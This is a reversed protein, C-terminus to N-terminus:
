LTLFLIFYFAILLIITVEQEVHLISIHTPVAIDRRSITRLLTSKGIGNRGVLGYRRGYVLTLNTNTLIRKGGFSIDFNEVKVDKVKGKTSTYDLIPNVRMFFENDTNKNILKSAEYNSRRERKEMKAKIKAEAKELKKTDVRTSVKRGSVAELDISSTALRATASISNSTLMNVPQELKALGNTNPKDSVKAFLKSLKECLQHIGEEDGGADLLIPRIFDSIADEGDVVSPTEDLYGVVYEVIADDVNPISQRILQSVKGLDTDAVMAM